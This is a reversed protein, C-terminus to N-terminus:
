WDMDDWDSKSRSRKVPHSVTSLIRLYIHNEKDFKDKELYVSPKKGNSNPVYFSYMDQNLLSSLTYVYSPGLGVKTIRLAKAWASDAPLKKDSLDIYASYNSSRRNFFVPIGNIMITDTRKIRKKIAANQIPLVSTFDNHAYEWIEHITQSMAQDPSEVHAPIFYNYTPTRGYIKLLIFYQKPGDGQKGPLLYVSPSSSIMLEMNPSFFGNADKVSLSASTYYLVLLKDVSEDEYLQDGLAKRIKNILGKIGKKLSQTDPYGRFEIYASRDYFRERVIAAASGPFDINLRHELEQLMTYQLSDGKCDKFYDVACNLTKVLAISFADQDRAVPKYEQAYVQLSCASLMVMSLRAIFM